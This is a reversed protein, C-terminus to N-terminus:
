QIWHQSPMMHGHVQHWFRLRESIGPLYIVWGGGNVSLKGSLNNLNSKFIDLNTM